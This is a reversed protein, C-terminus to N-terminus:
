SRWAGCQGACSHRRGCAPRKGRGAQKARAVGVTIRSRGSSGGRTTGRRGAVVVENKCGAEPLFGGHSEALAGRVIVRGQDIQEDIVEILKKFVSITADITAVDAEPLWRSAVISGSERNAM